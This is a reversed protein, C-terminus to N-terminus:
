GDRRNHALSDETQVSPQGGVHIRNLVHLLEDKRNVRRLRAAEIINEPRIRVLVDTAPALVVTSGAKAETGIHELLVEFFVVEVKDATSM